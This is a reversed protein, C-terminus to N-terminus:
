SHRHVYRRSHRLRRIPKPPPTVDEGLTSQGYNTGTAGIGGGMGGMGGGAGRAAAAGCLGVTVLVMVALIKVMRERAELLPREKGDDV